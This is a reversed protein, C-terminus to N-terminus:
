KGGYVRKVYMLKADLIVELLEWERHAINDTGPILLCRELTLWGLIASEGSWAPAAYTFLRIDFCDDHQKADFRTTHPIIVSFGAFSWFNLVGVFCITGSTKNFM